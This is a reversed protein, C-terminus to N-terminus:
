RSRITARRDLISCPPTRGVTSSSGSVETVLAVAGVRAYQLSEHNARSRPQRDLAARRELSSVTETFLVIRKTIANRASDSAAPEHAPTLTASSHASKVPLNM